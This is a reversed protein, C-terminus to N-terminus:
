GYVGRELALACGLERRGAGLEAALLVAVSAAVCSGVALVRSAQTPVLLRVAALCLRLALESPAPLFAASAHSVAAILQCCYCTNRSARCSHRRGHRHRLSSWLQHVAHAPSRSPACPAPVHACELPAVTLLSVVSHAASQRLLASQQLRSPPPASNGPWLQWACPLARGLDPNVAGNSMACLVRARATLAPPSNQPTPPAVAAPAARTAQPLWVWCPVAARGLCCGALWLRRRALQHPRHGRRLRRAARMRVPTAAPHACCFAGAFSVENGTMAGSQARAVVLVAAAPCTAGTAGPPAEQLHPPPILIRTM